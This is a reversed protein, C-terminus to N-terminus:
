IKKIIKMKNIKKKLNMKLNKFKIKINKKYNNNNNKKITILIKLIKNIKKKM